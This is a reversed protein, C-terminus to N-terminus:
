STILRKRQKRHMANLMELSPRKSEDPHSEFSPVLRQKAIAALRSISKRFDWKREPLYRPCIRDLPRRSEFSNSRCSQSWFKEQITLRHRRATRVRLVAFLRSRSCHVRLSFVVPFTLIEMPITGAGRDCPGKEPFCV